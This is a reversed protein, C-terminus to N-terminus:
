KRNLQKSLELKARMGNFMRSNLYDQVQNYTWNGKEMVANVDKWTFYKDYIIVSYGENIRHTLAKLIDDNVKYDSDYCICINSNNPQKTQLYSLVVSQAVGAMALANNVCMADIPGELLFVKNDWNVNNLGWIKICDEDVEFTTYRRKNDEVSADLRRCQIYSLMGNDDYFPIVLSLFEPFMKDVYKPINRSIYNLSNTAYLQSYYKEPIKRQIVYEKVAQLPHNSNINDISVCKNLISNKELRILNNSKKYEIKTEEVTPRTNGFKELKYESYMGIDLEKIFTSLRMSAGCNHCRYSLDNEVPYIYGRAKFQNKKSDGCFPCRFNYVHQGCDKFRDLRSSLLLTFKIDIHNM